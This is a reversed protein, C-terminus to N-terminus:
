HDVPVARGDCHGADGAIHTRGFATIEDPRNVATIECRKLVVQVVDLAFRLALADRAHGAARTLEAAESRHLLDLVKAADANADGEKLICFIRRELEAMREAIYSKMSVNALLKHSNGRAYSRSYGASFASQEVNGSIIYEDCFKQQKLTLGAM